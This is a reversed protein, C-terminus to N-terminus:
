RIRVTFVTGDRNFISRLIDEMVQHNGCETHNVGEARIVDTSSWRQREGYLNEGRQSDDRVIGDSSRIKKDKKVLDRM